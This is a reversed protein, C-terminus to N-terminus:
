NKHHTRKYCSEFQLRLTRSHLIIYIVCYKKPMKKRSVRTAYFHLKLYNEECFIFRLMCFPVTNRSKSLDNLNKKNEM